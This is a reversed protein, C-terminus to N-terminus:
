RTLYEHFKRTQHRANDTLICGEAGVYASILNLGETPGLIFATTSLVGAVTCSPAIISVARCGNDVPRGTRPDLIHGYRMGDRLLFRRADGSTAM